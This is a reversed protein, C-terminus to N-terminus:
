QLSNCALKIDITRTIDALDAAERETPDSLIETGKLAIKVFNSVEDKCTWLKQFSSIGINEYLSCKKLFRALGRGRM